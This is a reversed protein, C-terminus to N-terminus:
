KAVAKKAAKVRAAAWRKKMADNIRKKAEPSLKAPKSKAGKAVKAPSAKKAAVPKAAAAKEQAKSVTKAIAAADVGMLKAAEWLKERVGKKDERLHYGHPSLEGILLAHFAVRHLQEPTAKALFEKLALVANKSYEVGM